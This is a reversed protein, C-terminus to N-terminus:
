NVQTNMKSGALAVLLATILMTAAGVAFATAYSSTVDFMFGGIASGIAGGVAFATELTGMISGLNRVGFIDAPLATLAVGLGGWSFGFVAAFLYFMWLEHAWILGVLAGAQLLACIIGPVKRGIIDSIRGTLLKSVISFGGMVSLITAAEMTLIGIDTAYPVIHTMVLTLCLSFFLWIAWIFWYSRTKFAQLLSFGILQSNEKSATVEKNVANLKVGDPLYGIESPDNRLLMSLSIVVFWALLGIVIYSMRWGFNSILYAAFPAIVITGLAGGSGAIGLAFGRKKDFWRSVTSMLVPYAAGTGISLVLSYSLFLQWFSIAQSTLLLSVGTLLGMIFVVRKPGYRDLTWGGVIAFVVCFIMYASLVSSTAARSLAFEGELSKFFVGFSYRIGELTASIVFSTAVIVWGYFIKDKLKLSPLM